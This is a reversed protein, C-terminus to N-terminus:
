ILKRFCGVRLPFLNRSFIQGLPLVLTDAVTAVHASHLFTRNSFPSGKAEFCAVGEAFCKVEFCPSSSSVSCLPYSIRNNPVCIRRLILLTEITTANYKWRSYKLGIVTRRERRPDNNRCSSPVAAAYVGSQRAFDAYNM